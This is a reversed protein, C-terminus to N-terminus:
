NEEGAAPAAEEVDQAVTDKSMQQGEICADAMRAAALRISRIADDNAPIPYDVETPDANTDILAVIPIGLKRAEEVAIRERKTDIIFIVDPIASLGRIGDLFKRLKDIEKTLRISEKKPRLALEGTDRLKELEALRDLSKRITVFNTLTGGLWRQAIYPQGARRAEEAVIDQAQKKTGVFLVSGGSTVTDRVFSFAEKILVMTKQLDIIYIGNREGFIYKKMKPNWRSTQHGFHCGAELLEKMTIVAM